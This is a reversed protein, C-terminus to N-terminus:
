ITDTNFNIINVLSERKKKDRMYNLSRSRVTRYAYAIPSKVKKFDVSCLYLFSISVVEEADAENKVFSLAYYFLKRYHSYILILAKDRYLCKDSNNNSNNNSKSM